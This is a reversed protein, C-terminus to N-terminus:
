ERRLAEAALAAASVARGFDHGERLLGVSALAAATLIGYHKTM